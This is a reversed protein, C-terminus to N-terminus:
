YICNERKRSDFYFSQKVFTFAFLTNGYCGELRFHDNNTSLYNGLVTNLCNLNAKTFNFLNCFSAIEM